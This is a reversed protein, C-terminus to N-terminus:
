KDREKVSLSACVIDEGSISKGFLAYGDATKKRYVAIDDGEKSEHIYKIEFGTVVNEEFFEAPFSDLLIKVYSVNNTHHVHDTDSYRVRHSYCYDESSPQTEIRTYPEELAIKSSYEEDVPYCTSNLRRLKHTEADIVVWENKGSLLLEGDKTCISYNRNCIVGAPKSPWTSVIVDEYIKPHRLFKIKTRAIIWFANSKEKFDHFGVGMQEAHEGAIDQLITIAGSASLEAHSNTYSAPVSFNKELILMIEETYQFAWM